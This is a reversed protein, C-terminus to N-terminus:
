SPTHQSEELWGYEHDPVEDMCHKCGIHVGVPSQYLVKCTQYCNPCFFQWGLHRCEEIDLQTQGGGIDWVYLVQSVADETKFFETECSIDDGISVEGQLSSTYDPIAKLIFEFHRIDLILSDDVIDITLHRTFQDPSDPLYLDFM